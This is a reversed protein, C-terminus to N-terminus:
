SQLKNMPFNIPFPWYGNQRKIPLNILYTQLHSTHPKCTKREPEISLLSSLFAKELGYRSVPTAKYCKRKKLLLLFYHPSLSVFIESPQLIIARSWCVSRVFSPAPITAWRVVSSASLWTESTVQSFLQRRLFKILSNELSIQRKELQKTHLTKKLLECLCVHVYNNKRPGNNITFFQELTHKRPINKNKYHESTQKHIFSLTSFQVWNHHIEMFISCLNIKQRANIKHKQKYKQFM